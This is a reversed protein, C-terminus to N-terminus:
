GIPTKQQLLVWYQICIEYIVPAPTVNANLAAGNRGWLDIFEGTLTNSEGIEINLILACRGARCNM